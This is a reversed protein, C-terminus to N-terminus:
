YDVVADQYFDTTLLYEYAQQTYNDPSTADLMFKYHSTSDLTAIPSKGDLRAQKSAYVSVELKSSVGAKWDTINMGEHWNATIGDPRSSDAPPLVDSTRKNVNMNTIVHYASPVVMGTGAIEYDKILAM